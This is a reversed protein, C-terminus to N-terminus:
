EYNAGQKHFKILKEVKNYLYSLVEAVVITIGLNILFVICWKVFWHEIELKPLILYIFSSGIGQGFYYWIANKGIHSVFSAKMNTGDFYRAVLIAVMSVFLYKITPPFKANQIDCLPLNLIYTSVCIGVVCAFIGLILKYISKTKGYHNYGLMWFFGYFCFNVIDLGLFYNGFSVWIFLFLLIWMYTKNLIDRKENEQILMLVVSNILVIVFYYPMFWISGSVVVFGPISVKFMYNNILDRFDSVGQFPFPTKTSVYCVLALLSIFFIWKLWLKLLSVGTRSVDAAKYSSAWGSLYFFLPVDLFLTINWFWMPTYGQGSWFATHIAVVGIAAIGKLFDIYNNRVKESSM